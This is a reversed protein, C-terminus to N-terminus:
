PGKAEEQEQGAAAAAISAIRIPMDANANSVARAWRSLDDHHAVGIVLVPGSADVHAQVCSGEDEKVRLGPFPHGEDVGVRPSGRFSDDLTNLISEVLPESTAVIVPVVKNDCARVRMMAGGPVARVIEKLKGGEAVRLLRDSGQHIAYGLRDPKRMVVDSRGVDSYAACRHVVTGYRAAGHRVACVAVPARGGEHVIRCLLSLLIETVVEDITLHIEHLNHIRSCTLWHANQIPEGHM